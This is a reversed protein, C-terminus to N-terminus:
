LAPILSVCVSGGADRADCFSITPEPCSIAPCAFTGDGCGAASWKQQIATLVSSDNVFV